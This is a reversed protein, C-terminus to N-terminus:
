LQNHCQNRKDRLTGFPICEYKAQQYQLTSTAQYICCKSETLLEQNKGTKKNGYGGILCWCFGFFECTKAM